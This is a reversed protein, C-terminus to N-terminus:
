RCYKDYYYCAKQNEQSLVHNEIDCEIELVYCN